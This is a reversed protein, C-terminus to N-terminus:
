GQGFSISEEEEDEEMEEIDEEEEIEEETEELGQELELLLEDGTLLLDERAVDDPSDVTANTVLEGDSEVQLRLGRTLDSMKGHQPEWWIDEVNQKNRGLFLGEKRRTILKSEREGM